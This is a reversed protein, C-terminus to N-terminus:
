RYNQRGSRVVQFPKAGDRNGGAALPGRPLGFRDDTGRSRFAGIKQTKRFNESFNSIKTSKQCFVTWFTANLNTPSFRGGDFLWNTVFNKV